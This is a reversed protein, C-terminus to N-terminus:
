FLEAYRLSHSVEPFVLEESAECHVHLVTLISNTLLVDDAKTNKKEKSAGESGM